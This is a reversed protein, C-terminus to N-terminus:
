HGVPLHLADKLTPPRQYQGGVAHLCTKSVVAIVDPLHLADKLTPPRQYQGGVAHLSSTLSLTTSYKQEM